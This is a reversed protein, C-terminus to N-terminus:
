VLSQFRLQPHNNVSKYETIKFISNATNTKALQWCQLKMFHSLCRLLVVYRGIEKRKREVLILELRRLYKELSSPKEIEFGDATDLYIKLANNKVLLWYLLTKHLPTTTKMVLGRNIERM